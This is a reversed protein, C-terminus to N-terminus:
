PNAPRRDLARPVRRAVEWGLPRYDGDRWAFWQWTAGVLDGKDDFAVPGIVTQFRGRHLMEVITPPDLTGARRVAEAWVEVAAYAGLGTPLDGSGLVRFAELVNRAGPRDRLDPRATFLSGNAAPGAANWFEEGALADGGIMRLTLGARRITRLIRGADPGYGGVFLLAPEGRALRAALPGYDAAGPAYAEFLLEAVGLDRLRARVRNALGSGYTSGDHIIAIRAAGPQAALWDGAIRGQEDDRGGLRFVNPRGEETLRPHTSDPTIMPVMAAEYVAAAILSAHSCMHGVVLSVSAKVLDLAAAAAQDTGCADDAAVLEVRRGLLGGTANITEVALRVAMHNRQGTAALPGSLPNALGVKAPEARLPAAALVLM